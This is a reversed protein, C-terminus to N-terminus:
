IKVPKENDKQFYTPLPTDSCQRIAHVVNVITCKCNDMMWNGDPLKHASVTQKDNFAQVKKCTPDCLKPFLSNIFRKKDAHLEGPESVSYQVIGSCPLMRLIADVSMYPYENHPNEFEVFFTDNWLKRIQCERGNMFTISIQSCRKLDESINYNPMVISM